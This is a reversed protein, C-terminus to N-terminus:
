KKNYFNEITETVKLIDWFEDMSYTELLETTTIAESEEYISEKSKIILNGNCNFAYLDITVSENKNFENLIYVYEGDYDTTEEPGHSVFKTEYYLKINDDFINYYGIYFNNYPICYFEEIFINDDIFVIRGECCDCGYVFTKCTELSVDTKIEFVKESLEIKGKFPSLEFIDEQNKDIEEGSSNQSIEISHDTVIETNTTKNKQCSVCISVLLLLSTSKISSMRMQFIERNLM